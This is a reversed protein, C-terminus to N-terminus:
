RQRQRQRLVLAGLLAANPSYACTDNAINVHPALANRTHSIATRARQIPGLIYITTTRTSTTECRAVRSPSGFICPAHLRTESTHLTRPPPKPQAHPSCKRNSFMYLCKHDCIDSTYSRRRPGSICGPSQAIRLVVCSGLAMADDDCESEPPETHARKYEFKIIDGARGWRLARDIHTIPEPAKSHTHTRRTTISWNSLLLRVLVIRHTQPPTHRRTTRHLARLLLM